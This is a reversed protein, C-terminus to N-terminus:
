EVIIINSVPLSDFLNTKFIKYRWVIYKLQIKIALSSEM